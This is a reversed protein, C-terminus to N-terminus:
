RGFLFVFGKKKLRKIKKKKKLNINKMKRVSKRKLWVPYNGYQDLLTVPDYIREHKAVQEGDNVKIEPSVADVMVVDDASANENLQLMKHLRLLEKAGYRVRKVARCKRKWKSRLSKAM